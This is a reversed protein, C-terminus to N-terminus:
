KKNFRRYWALFTFIWATPYLLRSLIGFPCDFISLGTNCIYRKRCSSNSSLAYDSDTYRLVVSLVIALLFLVFPCVFCVSLALSRTIRVGNFVPSSSLNEPLSLQEQEALPMRWAFRAVFGTILRSHLFSWSTNVVLPVYGHYNILCINWLPRGLWPPSGLM